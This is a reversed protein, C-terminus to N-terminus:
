ANVNVPPMFLSSAGESVAIEEAGLQGLEEVFPVADPFAAPGVGFEFVSTTVKIEPLSGLQALPPGPVLFEAVEVGLVQLGVKRQHRALCPGGFGELLGRRPLLVQHAVVVRARHLLALGEPTPELIVM